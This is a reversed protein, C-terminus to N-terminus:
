IPLYTIVQLDLLPTCFRHLVSIEVISTRVHIYVFLCFTLFGM